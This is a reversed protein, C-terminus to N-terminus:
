LDMTKTTLASFNSRQVEAFMKHIKDTINQCRVSTFEEVSSRAEAETRKQPDAAATACLMSYVSIHIIQSYKM